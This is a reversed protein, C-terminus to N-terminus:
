SGNKMEERRKKKREWKASQQENKEKPVAIIFHGEGRNWSAIVLEEGDDPTWEAMEKKAQKRSWGLENPALINYTGAPFNRTGTLAIKMNELDLKKNVSTRNKRVKTRSKRAAAREERRLRREKQKPTEVLSPKPYKGIHIECEDEPVEIIGLGVMTCNLRLWGRMDEKYIQYITGALEPEKIRHVVLPITFRGDWNDQIKNTIEEILLITEGKEQKSLNGNELLKHQKDLEDQLTRITISM